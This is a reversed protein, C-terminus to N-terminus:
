SGDLRGLWVAYDREQRRALLAGTRKCRFDFEVQPPFLGSDKLIYGAVVGAGHVQGTDLLRLPGVRDVYRFVIEMQEAQEKFESPKKARLFFLRM